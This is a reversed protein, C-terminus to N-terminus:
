RLDNYPAVCSTLDKEPDLSPRHSSGGGNVTLNHELEGQLSQLRLDGAPVYSQWFHRIDDEVTKQLKAALEGVEKWM